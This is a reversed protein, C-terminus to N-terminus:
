ATAASEIHAALKEISAASGQGIIGRMTETSIGTTTVILKTRDSGEEIFEVVNRIRMAKGETMECAPIESEYTFTNPPDYATITAAYPHEGCGDITMLHNYAGGVRPEITSVVKTTQACGWWSQVREPNMWADFVFERPADFTRTLRLGDPLIETHTESMIRNQSTIYADLADLQRTWFARYTEIWQDAAKLAEPNLHCRRVRGEKHQVILGARELVRLHKSIAPPTMDFPRALEGVPLDNEVALRELMARRTPDSLAGFLQDLQSPEHSVGIAEIVVRRLERAIDEGGSMLRAVIRGQADLVFYTPLASLALDTAVTSGDKEAWLNPWAHAHESQVRLGRALDRDTCVGLIAFREGGLEELLAREHPFMAICPACWSAWASVLTVRGRFDQIAVPEGSLTEGSVPPFMAGVRLSRIEHEFGAYRSAFTSTEGPPADDGYRALFKTATAIAREAQADNLVGNSSDRTIALAAEVACAGILPALPELSRDVSWLELQFRLEQMVEPKRGADIWVRPRRYNKRLFAWTEGALSGDAPADRLVRTAHSHLMSRIREAGDAASLSAIDFGDGILEFAELPSSAESILAEIRRSFADSQDPPLTEGRDYAAELAATIESPTPHEDAPAAASAGFALALALFPALRPTMDSVRRLDTETLECHLSLRLRSSGPAVTPPRVLATLVGQEALADRARAARDTEGLVIPVIHTPHEDFSPVGLPALMERITHADALLRERREPEDDLVRLAEDICAAQLPLAGTSYIFARGENLVTDIVANPGLVIGGLSGLAKSATMVRVDARHAHREDLVGTAHAEDVILACPARDALEDRLDALADIPALDGDMSFVSETVLLVNADPHKELHKCAVARARGADNHAFTRLTAGVPHGKHTALRAGDILSAHALKDLLLLTNEDALAQLLATNASYGTPTFLAREVGKRGAIKAEIERVFGTREAILRSSGAGLGFRDVADHAAKALRPHTCLRLCDNSRLDIAGDAPPSIPPLARRLGMEFEIEDELSQQMLRGVKFKVVKKAPVHVRELTKPNQAMRAKRERIEFVGFDRFELRNGKGLELIVQDLFSQVTKKVAVRRQGTQDAIRDILDKKTITAMAEPPEMQRTPRRPFKGVISTHCLALWRHFRIPDERPPLPEPWQAQAKFPAAYRASLAGNRRHIESGANPTAYLSATPAYGYIGPAPLAAVPENGMYQRAAYWEPNSSGACGALALGLAALALATRPANHVTKPHTERMETFRIRRAPPERVNPDARLFFPVGDRAHRVSGSFNVRIPPEGEINSGVAITGRFAGRHNGANGKITLVYGKEGKDEFPAIVAEVGPISSRLITVDDQTMVFSKDGRHTIRTEYSFDEKPRLPLMRIATPSSKLNGVIRGLVQITQHQESQETVGDANQYDALADIDLTAAVRGIPLDGPVTIKIQRKGPFDKKVEAPIEKMLEATLGVNGNIRVDKIEFDPDKSFVTVFLEQEDGILAEGFQVVRPNIDMIQVVEAIVALTITPKLRSNTAVTVNKTQRKAGKPKFTVDIYSGEGPAYEKKDVVAATCGCSTRTSEIYIPENGTNTFPFKVTLETGDPNLGFDHSTFEFTLVGDSKERPEQGPVDQKPAISTTPPAPKVGNTSLAGNDKENSKAKGDQQANAFSAAGAVLGAAFVATATISALTRRKMTQDRPCPGFLFLAAVLDNFDVTGSEDADCPDDAGAAPGFAFLMSVLDNFDVENNDDCDGLCVDAMMGPTQFTLAGQGAVTSGGPNTATVTWFYVTGGSLAGAPVPFEFAPPAGGANFNFPGSDVLVPSSFDQNDDIMVEYGTADASESWTLVPELDPLVPPTDGVLAGPGFMFFPDPLDFMTFFSAPDPNGATAGNINVADVRWFYETGLELTGGSASFNPFPTQAGDIIPSSFDSDDDISIEYFTANESTEWIFTPGTGLGMAGDAPSTLNFDGPVAAVSDVSVDDVFWDDFGANASPNRFRIRLDAHEASNPLQVSSSEFVTMDPGSGLQRDVEIWQNNEDFFEVILDDGTETSNGNGTRQYFYSIVLNDQFTANMRGSRLESGGTVNLSLAGSPENIGLTNIAVGGDIGTWHAPNITTSPFDDFFPLPAGGAEFAELCGRSNRHATISNISQNTFQNACTLSPNMTFGPCSCHLSNWNHGLEHASLDTRCGFGGVNQVINYASNTICIVGVPALGITSGQWEKGSFMEAVDRPVGGMTSNWHFTFENLITGPDTSNYPDSNTPGSRTVITTIQHTIGVQTEYQNNMTNIINEIQQAGNGGFDNNWEVDMDCALEAICLGGCDGSGLEVGRPAEAPPMLDPDIMDIGGCTGNFNLVDAQDYMVHHRRTVGDIMEVLPETVLRVGEAPIEIVGQFGKEDVSGSVSSGPIGVIEGRVTRPAYPELEIYSGDALQTLLKFGPARVSYPEVRITAVEGFFPIQTEFPQAEAPVDFLAVTGSAVGMAEFARASVDPDQEILRDLGIADIQGVQASAATSLAAISMAAAALATTFRKMTTTRSEVLIVGSRTAM